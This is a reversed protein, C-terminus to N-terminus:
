LISLLIKAIKECANGDGFVISPIKMANISHHDDIVSLFASRVADRETGVMVMNGSIIAESRETTDRLLFIPVGLFSAEEQIGGSDTMVAFSRALLNHFDALPLPDCIKINKVDFFVDEAERKVLPNPHAPMICFIDNREKLIDKIGLLSSRMRDGINERRHMTLLVMKKDGVQKIIDSSYDDILTYKLCDIGTNGVVFAGKRREADLNGLALETPAFHNSSMADIGVRFVEEPYPSFTNFSRLGAEIHAIRIKRYFAALAACFASATDGQVLVLDPTEKDFLVDFYNLLTNTLEKLGGGSRMADFHVDPEIKFFDFVEDAIREHQGSHCIKVEFQEYKKLEIYLPLMKIAEPRTGVVMFIRM